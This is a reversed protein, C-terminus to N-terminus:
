CVNKYGKLFKNYLFRAINKSTFNVKDSILIAVRANSDERTNVQKKCYFM